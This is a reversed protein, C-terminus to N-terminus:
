VPDAVSVATSYACQDAVIIPGARLTLGRLEQELHFMARGGRHSSPPSRGGFFRVSKASRVATRNRVATPSLYRTAHSSKLHLSAIDGRAFSPSMVTVIIGHFERGIDSTVGGDIRDHDGGVAGELADLAVAPQEPAVPQREEVADVVQRELSPLARAAARPEVAFGVPVVVAHLDLEALGDPAQGPLM